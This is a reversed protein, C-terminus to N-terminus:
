GMNMVARAILMDKMIIKTVYSNINVFLLRRCERHIEYLGSSENLNMASIWFDAIGMVIEGFGDDTILSHDGTARVYLDIAIAIDGSIHIEQKADISSRCIEM